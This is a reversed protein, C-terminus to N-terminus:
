HNLFIKLITSSYSKKYNIILWWYSMIHACFRSIWISNLQFWFSIASYLKVSSMTFSYPCVRLQTFNCWRMWFVCSKKFIKPNIFAYFFYLDLDINLYISLLNKIKWFIISLFISAVFFDSSIYIHIIINLFWMKVASFSIKGWIKTM